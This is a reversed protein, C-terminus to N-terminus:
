RCRGLAQAASLDGRRQTPGTSAESSRAGDPSHTADGGTRSTSSRKSIQVPVGNCTTARSLPDEFSSSPMHLLSDDIDQGRGSEKQKEGEGELGAEMQQCKMPLLPDASRTLCRTAGVRRESLRPPARHPIAAGRDVSGSHVGRGACGKDCTGLWRGRHEVGLSLGVTPGRDRTLYVTKTEDDRATRTGRRRRSFGAAMLVDGSGSISPPIWQPRQM